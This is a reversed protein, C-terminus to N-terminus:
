KGYMPIREVIISSYRSALALEYAPMIQAETEVERVAITDCMLRFADTYNQRHQPGQDHPEKWGVATRIIVKAPHGLWTAKDLHNVIQNAALLAFDWRPYFCVPLYGELALGMCFGAQFDEAVPLEIRREMPVDAFTPYAAQGPYRVAQGVFISNSEAALIAMAKTLEGRYSL